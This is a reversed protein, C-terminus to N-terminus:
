GIPQLDQHCATEIDAGVQIPGRTRLTRVMVLATKPYSSAIGSAGRRSESAMLDLSGPGIRRQAPEGAPRRISLNAGAAASASPAVWIVYKMQKLTSAM